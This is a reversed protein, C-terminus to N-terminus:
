HIFSFFTKFEREPQTITGNGHEVLKMLWVMSEHELGETVMKLAQFANGEKHPEREIGYCL